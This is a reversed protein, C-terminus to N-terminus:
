KKKRRGSNAFRARVRPDVAAYLLDVILIIVSGILTKLILLGTVTTVDRGNISDILLRGTGPWAFVTETLASGGLVGAFQEGAVTLIPIMANKLAHKWIVIKESAGKARVTRLYDQHIVDLMSSRTTRGLAATLSTGITIAPLILSKITGDDGNSPLWGLKLSFVIILVLGLWFNPISLGLLTGFSAVNDIVTGDHVASIIGLPISIIISVLVSAIALRATSGIRAMFMDMVPEGTAQSIGLDGQLLRGMYKLYRVPLPQNLGYQEYLAEIQEATMNNDGMKLLVIDGPAIDMLFYILFSVGIIIPIM